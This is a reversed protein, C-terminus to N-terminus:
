LQQWENVDGRPPWTRNRHFQQGVFLTRDTTGPLLPGDRGLPRLVFLVSTSRFRDAPKSRGAAQEGRYGVVQREVEALVKGAGRAAMRWVQGGEVALYGDRVRDSFAVTGGKGGRAVVRFM